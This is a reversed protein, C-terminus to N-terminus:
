RQGPRKRHELIRIEAAAEAHDPDLALVERFQHLAERTRGLMREVLGLYFRARVPDGARYIARELTRRTEIAVAERDPADCFRAWALAAQYDQDAPLLEVARGLLTLAAPLAERHLAALGKEFAEAAQARRDAPAPEGRATRRQDLVANYEARRVPDSLVAYAQSIRSFVEDAVRQEDPLLPPRKDPHLECAFAVYASRIADLSADPMLGLVTYHGGGRAIRTRAIEITERAMQAARRPTVTRPVAINPHSSYTTTRPTAPAPLAHERPPTVAPTPRKQRVLTPAEFTVTRARPIDETSVRMLAVGGTAECAGTCVLAYIVAQATRPDISRHRAELEPLTTGACLAELVPQEEDTFGYRDPAVDGRVRFRTGLERLEDTLRQQSLYMRAGLYIAAAVDIECGPTCAREDFAFRGSEVAFTRAARQIVTRTRLGLAQARALNALEDIVDFENRATEAIAKAITQAQSSTILQALLAVRAVSDAVLPSTASAILGRAFVITYAKGDDAIVALEGTLRRAALGALLVGWPQDSVRSM